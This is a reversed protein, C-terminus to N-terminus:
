FRGSTRETAEAYEAGTAASNVFNPRKISCPEYIEIQQGNSVRHVNLIQSLYNKWGNLVDKLDALLDGNEDKVL